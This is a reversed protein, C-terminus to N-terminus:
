YDLPESIDMCLACLLFKASHRQIDCFNCWHSDFRLRVPMCGDGFWPAMAAHYLFSFTMVFVIVFFPSLIFCFQGHERLVIQQLHVIALIQELDDDVLHKTKMDDVSDPYIVQDRLTGISM